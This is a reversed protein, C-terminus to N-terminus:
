ILLGHLVRGSTENQWQLCYPTTPGPQLCGELESAASGSSPTISAIRPVTRLIFHSNYIDVATGSTL